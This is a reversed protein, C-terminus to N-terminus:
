ERRKGDKSVEAHPHCRDHIAKVDANTLTTYIQTTTISEHGLLEQVTRLDAGGALLHSAFARRFAHPHAGQVGARLALQRVIRRVHFTSLPFLFGHKRDGLYESLAAVAKSGFLVIRDKGGKGKNVRITRNAFDIDELQIKVLESVRVGTAYLTEILARQLPTRRAAILREIEEVTLVRPIRKPVKRSEVRVMPDPGTRVESVRLFKFFTRLAATHLRISNPHLGKALLLTQLKRIDTRTADLVSRSGLLAILRSVSDGYARRTPASMGRALMYQGFAEAIAKNSESFSRLLTKTQDSTYGALISARFKRIDAIDSDRRAADELVEAIRDEPTKMTHEWAATV